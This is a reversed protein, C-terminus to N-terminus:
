FQDRSLVRNGLMNIPCFRGIEDFENTHEGAVVIEIIDEVLVVRRAGINAVCLTVRKFLDARNYHWVIGDSREVAIRPFYRVKGDEFIQQFLDGEREQVCISLRSENM